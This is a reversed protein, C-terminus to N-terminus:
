QLPSGPKNGVDTQHPALRSLADHEGRANILEKAARFIMDECLELEADYHAHPEDLESSVYRLVAKVLQNRAKAVNM